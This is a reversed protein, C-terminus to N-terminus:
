EVLGLREFEEPPACVARMEKILAMSLRKQIVPDDIREDGARVDWLSSGFAYPNMYTKARYTLYRIGNSFRDGPMFKASTLSEPSFFGRMACPMLTCEVLPENDERAAARMYVYGGDTVCVHNGHAGFLAHDCTAAVEARAIPLCRLARQSTGSASVSSWSNVAREEAAVAVNNNLTKVLKM